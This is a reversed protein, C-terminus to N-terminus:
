EFPTKKQDSLLQCTPLNDYAIKNMTFMGTLGNMSYEVDATNCDTFEITMTGASELSTENPDDFLGGRSNSITLTASSDEFSGAATVWRQNPDGVVASEGQGPQTTDWTFWAAFLLPIDPYIEMLMGQGVTDPNAWAGNLGETIQFNADPGLLVYEFDGTYNDFLPQVVLYYDVGEDLTFTGYDDFQDLLNDYPSSPNFNNTYIALCIDLGYNVSSDGYRYQGTRPVRIPGSVQYDTLGCYIEEPLTPDSGDFNGSSWAPTDYIAPGSLTGPGRYAFSWEGRRNDGDSCAQVVVTYNTGSQLNISPENYGTDVYGVRNAAPNAPDFSTYIAVHTDLDYYLSTDSFGYAGTVSATVGTFAQYFHTTNASTFCWGSDGIASTMSENGRFFGSLVGNAAFATPAMFMLLSFVALAQFNIHKRKKVPQLSM